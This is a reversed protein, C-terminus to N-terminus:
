MELKTRSLISSSNICIVEIENKYGNTDIDAADSQLKRLINIGNSWEFHDFLTYSSQAFTCPPTPSGM